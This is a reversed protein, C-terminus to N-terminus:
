RKVRRIVFEFGYTAPGGTDQVWVAYAGAPLPAKTGILMAPLIDTGIEAASYHALGLLDEVGQGTPTCTIQEGKEIAVFSAGGSVTTNRLLRIGVLVHGEPVVFRFYDRDVGSGPNGTTGLIANGGRLVPVLTPALRDNSLDGNRSEKWAPAAQAAGAAMALGLLTTRLVARSGIHLYSLM